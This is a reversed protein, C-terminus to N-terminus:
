HNQLLLNEFSQMLNVINLNNKANIKGIIYPAGGNSCVRIVYAWPKHTHAIDLFETACSHLLYEFTQM